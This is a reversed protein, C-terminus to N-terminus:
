LLRASIMGRLDNGLFFGEALDAAVLEGEIAEGRAILGARHVGPLLGLALPPTVLVEGRRVYLNTFSGETLLGDPRAFVVEFTGAAARAEDY